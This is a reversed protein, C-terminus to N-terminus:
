SHDGNEARMRDTFRAVDERHFRWHGGPTKFGGILGANAWRNVTTPDVHFEAAVAAPTLVEPM